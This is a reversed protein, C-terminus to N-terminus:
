FSVVLINHSKEGDLIWTYMITIKWIDSTILVYLKVYMILETRLLGISHKSSSYFRSFLLLNPQFIKELCLLLWAHKLSQMGNDILSISYFLLFYSNPYVCVCYCKICVEVEAARLQGFFVKKMLKGLLVVIVLAQIYM